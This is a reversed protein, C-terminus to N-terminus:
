TLGTTAALSLTGQSVSLQLSLPASGNDADALAIANGFGAGFLLTQDSLTTATAPATIQPPAGPLIEVAGIDCESTGSGDGDRPRTIGRQDTGLATNGIATCGQSTDVGASDARPRHTPAYGGYDALPLLQGAPASTAGSCTGDTSLNTGETAFTAAFPGSAGCNGGTNESLWVSRLVYVPTIPTFGPIPFPVAAGMVAANITGANNAVTVHSLELRAADTAHIATGGVLATNGSFTSNRIRVTTMPLFPPGTVAIAGGNVGADNSAFTADSIEPISTVGPLPGPGTLAIAGGINGASNDRFHAGRVVLTPASIAGGTSSANDAFTVREITLPVNQSLIAGGGTFFPSEGCGNRLTLDRLTLSATAPFGTTARILRFEDAAATGTPTCATAAAAREIVAGAGEITVDSMIAPLAANGAFPEADNPTTFSFVAGAPLTIVDPGSGAACGGTVLDTNASAIADRLTCDPGGTGVSNTTVLIPAARPAGPAAALAACAALLLLRFPAM